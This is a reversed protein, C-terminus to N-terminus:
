PLMAFGAERFNRDFTLAKRIGLREMLVFSTCDTFSWVKDPRERFLEWAAEFVPEEIRSMRLLQSDRLAEGIRRAADWRRTLGLVTTITEDFIYDSFIWRSPEKEPARRDLVVSRAKSHNVDRPNFRSILFSTDVFYHEM